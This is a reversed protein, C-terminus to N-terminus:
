TRTSGMALELVGDSIFRNFDAYTEDSAQDLSKGEDLMKLNMSRNYGGMDAGPQDHFLEIKKSREDYRVTVDGDRWCTVGRPTIPHGDPDLKLPAKDDLPKFSTRVTAFRPDGPVPIQGSEIVQRTSTPVWDPVTGPADLIKAAAGPKLDDYVTRPSTPLALTWEASKGEKDVNTAKLLVRQDHPRNSVTRERPAPVHDGKFLVKEAEARSVPRDFKMLYCSHDGGNYQGTATMQPPGSPKASKTAAAPGATRALLLQDDLQRDGSTDFRQYADRLVGTSEAGDAGTHDVSDAVPVTAPRASAPAAATGGASEFLQGLELAANTLFSEIKNDM